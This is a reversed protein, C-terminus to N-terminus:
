CQGRFGEAQPQVELFMCAGMVSSARRPFSLINWELKSAAQQLKRVYRSQFEMDLVTPRCRINFVLLSHFVAHRHIRGVM